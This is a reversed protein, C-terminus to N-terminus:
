EVLDVVKSRGGKLTTPNSLTPSRTFKAGSSEVIGTQCLTDPVTNHDTRNNAPKCTIEYTEGFYSHSVKHVRNPLFNGWDSSIPTPEVVDDDSEREADAVLVTKHTVVEACDVTGGGGDDGDGDEASEEM